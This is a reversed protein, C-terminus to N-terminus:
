QCLQLLCGRGLGVARPSMQQLWYQSLPVTSNGIGYIGDESAEFDLDVVRAWGEGQLVQEQFAHISHSRVATKAAVVQTAELAVWILGLGTDYM